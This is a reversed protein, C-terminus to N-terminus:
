NISEFYIQILYIHFIAFKVICITETLEATAIFKATASEASRLLLFFCKRLERCHM